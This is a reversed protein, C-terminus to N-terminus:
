QGVRKRRPYAWWALAGTLLWPVAGGIASTVPHVRSAAMADPSCIWMHRNRHDDCPDPWPWLLLGTLILLISSGAYRLVRM